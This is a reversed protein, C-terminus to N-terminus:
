ANGGQGTETKYQDIATQEVDSLMEKRAKMIREVPLRLAKAVEDVSAGGAFHREAIMVKLADDVIAAKMDQKKVDVQASAQEFTMGQEVAGKIRKVMEEYMRDDEPTLGDYWPKEAM